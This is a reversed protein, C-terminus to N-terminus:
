MYWKLGKIDDRSNMVGAQSKLACSRDPSTTDRGGESKTRPPSWCRTYVVAVAQTGRTHLEEDTICEIVRTRGVGDSGSIDGQAIELDTEGPAEEVGLL